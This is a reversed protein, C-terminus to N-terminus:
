CPRAPPWAMFRRVLKVAVRPRTTEPAVAAASGASGRRRSTTYSGRATTVTGTLRPTTVRTTSSASSDIVSTAAPRPPSHAFASDAQHTAAWGPPRFKKTLALLEALAAFLRATTVSRRVCAKRKTTRASPSGLGGTYRSTTLAGARAAGAVRSASRSMADKTANGTTGDGGGGCCTTASRRCALGCTTFVWYETASPAPDCSM